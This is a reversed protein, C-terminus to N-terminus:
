KSRTQLTKKTKRDQQFACICVFMHLGWRSAGPAVKGMEVAPDIWSILVSQPSMVRANIDRAEYEPPETPCMWLSVSLFASFFIHPKANKYIFWHYFELIM